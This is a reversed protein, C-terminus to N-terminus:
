TTEVWAGTGTTARPRPSRRTTALANVMLTCSWVTRASTPSSTYSKSSTVTKVTGPYVGFVLKGDNRMYVHRDYNGSNGTANNGFGIIKGGQTTTTKIWAETAFSNTGAVATGTRVNSANGNGAFTTATDPDGAVAGAAGRTVTGTITGPNTGALDNAVTGNPEGLRWYLSASDDLVRMGYAGVVTTSVTVPTWDGVASNGFPDTAKVM